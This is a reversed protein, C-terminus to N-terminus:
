TRRPPSHWVYRQVHDVYSLLIRLVKESVNPVQYERPCRLRRDEGPGQRLALALGALVKRNLGGSAIAATVATGISGEAM